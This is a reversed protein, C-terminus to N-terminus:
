MLEIIFLAYSLMPKIRLNDLGEFGKTSNSNEVIKYSIMQIKSTSNPISGIFHVKFIYFYYIFIGNKSKLDYM